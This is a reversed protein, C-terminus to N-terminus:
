LCRMYLCVQKVPLYFGAKIIKGSATTL